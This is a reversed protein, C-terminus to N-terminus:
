EYGKCRFTFQPAIYKLEVVGCEGDKQKAVDCQIDQILDKKESARHLLIVNTADEEITGSEKLNALTPPTGDAARNVQCCCWVAINEQLAIEQLAHTMHSFRSRKDTFRCGSEKLQELQDIVVLYPRHIRILERIVKLDAPDDRGRGERGYMIFNGSRYFNKMTDLAATVEKGKSSWAERSIGHRVQYNTLDTKSLLHRMLLSSESMELPLFLVKKGQRAVNLACQFAFASKGVSPRAGIFTLESTRVGGLLYDLDSLGFLVPKEKARRDLEDLLSEVPDPDPDPISISRETFRTIVRGIEELPKKSLNSQIWARIKDQFYTHLASDYLAPENAAMLEAIESAPMRSERALEVPNDTGNKKIACFLDRHSSFDAPKFLDIDELSKGLLWQSLILREVERNM